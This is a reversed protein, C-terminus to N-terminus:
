KIFNMIMSGIFIAGIILGFIIYGLGANQYDRQFERTANNKM